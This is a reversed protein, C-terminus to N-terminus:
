RAWEDYAWPFGKGTLQRLGRNEVAFHDRLSKKLDAPMSEAKPTPKVGSKKKSYNKFASPVWQRLGVFACVESLVKSPSAYLEEASLVLFQPRPFVSLWHALQEVYYGRALYSFLLANRVSGSGGNNLVDMGSGIRASEREVAERFPLEEFGLRCMHQWHSYARDVPDRLLIIFKADPLLKQVRWPSRPDFFYDPTAEFTCGAGRVRELYKLTVTTPFHAKYWRLEQDYDISFFRTEKRLSPVVQPHGGLYKYLSSTGCRQAGIILFDPVSRGFPVIQRSRLRSRLIRRRASPPVRNKVTEFLFQNRAM